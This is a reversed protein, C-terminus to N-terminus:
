EQIQIRSLGLKELVRAQEAWMVAKEEETSHDYGLLHLTGHVVLLQAEAEVPHGGTQAQQAARPISIAIDGLYLEETEPDVEGAPFSLVDTPADVGLYDLNLEHLQRDDTLVITMDAHASEPGLDPNLPSVSELTILAARELLTTDRFDMQNDINIM